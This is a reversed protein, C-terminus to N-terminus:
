KTGIFSTMSLSGYSYVQNFIEIREDGSAGLAYLVPLFHEPTPIALRVDNGLSNYDCLKEIERVTILETLQLDSKIAWRSGNDPSKWNLQSLNHVINGSCLILIGSESLKHLKQGLQYHWLPPKTSDISLQVIPVELNPYIHTLISWVGHDLGWDTARIIEGDKFDNLAQIIEATFEPSGNSPYDFNTLQPPFGYFDHITHNVKNNSIALYPVYWHASIALIARPKALTKGLNQWSKTIHNIELANMPSGHGIFLTTM